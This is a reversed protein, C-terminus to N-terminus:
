QQPELFYKHSFFMENVNKSFGNFNYVIVDNIFRLYDHINILLSIMFYYKYMHNHLANISSALLENSM